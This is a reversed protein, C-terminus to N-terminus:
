KGEVYKAFSGRDILKGAASEKISKDITISQKFTEWAVCESTFIGDLCNDWWECDKEDEHICISRVMNEVYKIWEKDRTATTKADQAIAVLTADNLTIRFGCQAVLGNLREDSLLRENYM